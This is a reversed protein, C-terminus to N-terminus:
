KRHTQGFNVMVRKTMVKNSQKTVGGEERRDIFYM